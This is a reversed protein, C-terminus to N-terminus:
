GFLVGKQLCCTPYHQFHGSAVAGSSKHHYPITPSTTDALQAQPDEKYWHLHSKSSRNQLGLKDVLIQGVVTTIAQAKATGSCKVSGRNQTTASPYDVKLLFDEHVKSKSNADHYQLFHKMKRKVEGRKPSIQGREPPCPSSKSWITSIASVKELHSLGVTQNPRLGTPKKDQEGPRPWGCSEREDPHGFMMKNNSVPVKVGSVRPEQRDQSVWDRLFLDCPGQSSTKNSRSMCQYSSMSAQSPLSDTTPLMNSHYDPHSGAECGVQAKLDVDVPDQLISIRSHSPSKSTRLSESSNLNSNITQVNAMMSAEMSVEWSPHIEKEVQVKEMTKKVKSPQSVVKVKKSTVSLSPDGSTRSMSEEQLEHRAVEPSPSPKVNGRSTDLVTSSKKTGRLLNYTRPQFPTSGEQVSQHVEALGGSGCSQVGTQIRQLEAHAHASFPSQLTAVAMKRIAKERLSRQPHEELYSAIYDASSPIASQSLPSAPAESLNDKVPELAQMYSDWRQRMQYRIIHTELTLCSKPDLFSLEQSTNVRFTWGKCSVQNIPKEPNSSKPFAHSAALWSQRVCLPIMGKEIQELKRLVYEQMTKKLHEKDPKISLNTGSHYKRPRMLYSESDDNVGKLLSSGSSCPLDELGKRLDQELGKSTDDLKLMELSKQTRGSCRSGVKEVCKNRVCSLVSPQTPQSSGHKDKAQYQCKEPFKDKPQMLEQSVPFRIPPFHQQEDRIFRDQSQQEVKHEQLEPSPSDGPLISTSKITHTDQSGQPLNHTSQNVAEQSKQFKSALIKRWKLQKQWPWELNQDENPVFTQAM